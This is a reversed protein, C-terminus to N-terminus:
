TNQFFSTLRKQETEEEAFISIKVGVRRIELKSESLFKEFLWRVTRKLVEIDRTDTELTKSRNRVSLDSMIAIVGVQKFSINKKVVDKHIAEI